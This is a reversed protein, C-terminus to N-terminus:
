LIRYPVKEGVSIVATKGSFNFDSSEGGVPRFEKELAQIRISVLDQREMTGGLSMEGFSIQGEQDYCVM